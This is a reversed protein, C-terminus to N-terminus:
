SSKFLKIIKRFIGEEDEEEEDDENDESNEAFTDDADEEVEVTAEENDESDEMMEEVIDEEEVEVTAEEDDEGDEIMEEEEEMVDEEQEVELMAEEDDEGDEIMEERMINEEQEVEVLGDEGDEDIEDGDDDVFIDDVVEDEEGGDDIPTDQGVQLDEFESIENTEIMMEMVDDEQRPEDADEEEEEPEDMAMSSLIEEPEEVHDSRSAFVKSAIVSIVPTPADADDDEVLEVMDEEDEDELDEVMDEIGEDMDKSDELFDLTEDLTDFFASVRNGVGIRSRASPLIDPSMRLEVGEVEEEDDADDDEVDVVSVPDDEGEEMERGGLISLTDDLSRLFSRHNFLATKAGAGVLPAIKKATAAVKANARSDVPPSLFVIVATLLIGVQVHKWTLRSM